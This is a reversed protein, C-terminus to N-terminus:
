LFSSSGKQDGEIRTEFSPLHPAIGLHSSSLHASIDQVYSLIDGNLLPIDSTTNFPSVNVIFIFPSLIGYDENFM